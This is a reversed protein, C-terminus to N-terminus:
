AKDSQAFGLYVGATVEPEERVSTSSIHTSLVQESNWLGSERGAFMAPKVMVHPSMEREFGQCWILVSSTSVIVPHFCLQSACVRSLISNRPFGLVGPLYTCPCQLGHLGQGRWSCCVRFMTHSRNLFDYHRVSFAQKGSIRNRWVDHRPKLWFNSPM